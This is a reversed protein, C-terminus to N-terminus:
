SRCSPGSPNSTKSSIWGAASPMTVDLILLDWQKGQVASIAQQANAAEGTEVGPLESTLIQSVGKRFIAHDDALLIRTL